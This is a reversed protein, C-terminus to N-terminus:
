KVFTLYWSWMWLFCNVFRMFEEAAAKVSKLSALNLPLWIAERGTEAKLEEIALLAKQENRAAM